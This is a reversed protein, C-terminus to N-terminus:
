AKKEDVFNKAQKLKEAAQKELGDIQGEYQQYAPLVYTDYIITSGQTAPHM